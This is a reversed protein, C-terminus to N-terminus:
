SDQRYSSYCESPYRLQDTLREREHIVRVHLSPQNTVETLSHMLGNSRSAEVEIVLGSTLTHKIWRSKKNRPSTLVPGDDADDTSGGYLGESNFAGINAESYPPSAPAVVTSPEAPLTPFVPAFALSATVARVVGRGHAVTIDRCLRSFASCLLAQILLFM